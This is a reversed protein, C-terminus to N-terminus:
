SSIKQRFLYFSEITLYKQLLSRRLHKVPNEILTQNQNPGPINREVFSQIKKIKEHHCSIQGLFEVYMYESKDLFNKWGSLEWGILNKSLSPHLGTLQNLWVLFFNPSQIESNLNQLCSFNHTIPFRHKIFFNISNLKMKRIMKHPFTKIKKRKPDNRNQLNM